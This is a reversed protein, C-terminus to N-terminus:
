SSSSFASFGSFCVCRVSRRKASLSSSNFEVKCNLVFSKPISLLSRVREPDATPLGSVIWFRAGSSSVTVGIGRRQSPFFNSAADLPGNACACRVEKSHRNMVVTSSPKKTRSRRRCYTILIRAIKHATATIARAIGLKARM